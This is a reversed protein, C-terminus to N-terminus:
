TGTQLSIFDMKKITSCDSTFQNLKFNKTQFFKFLRLIAKVKKTLFFVHKEFIKFYQVSIDRITRSKIPPNSSSRAANFTM